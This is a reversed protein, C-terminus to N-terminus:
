FTPTSKAYAAGFYSTYDYNTNDWDPPNPNTQTSKGITVDEMHTESKFVTVNTTQGEEGILFWRYFLYKDNDPDVNWLSDRLKYYYLGPELSSADITSNSPDAGAEIITESNLNRKSLWYYDLTGGSGGTYTADTLGDDGGDTSHTVDIDITPPLIYSVELVPRWNTSDHQASAYKIGYDNSGSESQLRIRWGHNLHEYWVMQEVHDTVDFEHYSTDSSTESDTFSLQDSTYVDPKNSWTISDKYWLTDVREIYISHDSSDVVELPYLKLTAEYIIATQPISGLNFQVFSRYNDNNITLKDHYVFLTTDRWYNVDTSDSNVYSDKSPSLTVTQVQASVGVGTLLLCVALLFLRVVQKM